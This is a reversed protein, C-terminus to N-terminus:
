TSSTPTKKEASPRGGGARRARGAVVQGDLLQRRGRAVTHPDLHLMAALQTDGGHGAKISELGAYLRRQQEDLLSFFLATAANLEDPPVLPESAVAVTPAPAGRRARAQRDAQGPEAATYLLRGGIDSRGLRGGVALQRLPDHVAVHLRDALEDAFWGRVSDATWSELTAKLTGHRSFWVGAHSWLGDRDFRAVEPLTHFRGRHSYSSLAGLEALKRFVTVDADTGLLVKLASKDAIKHRVLHRRLVGPDYSTPRM